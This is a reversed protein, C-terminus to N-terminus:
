GEKKKLGAVAAAREKVAAKILAKIAPSRVEDITRIKAHRAAKGTGELLGAPDPLAIGYYFGLNVSATLPMIHAYAETMKRPGVGYTTCKEGIRPTEVSEPHLSAILARLARAIAQIDSAHPKLIAEFTGLREDTNM